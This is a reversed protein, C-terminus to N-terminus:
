AFVRQCTRQAGIFEAQGGQRGRQQMIELVFGFPGDRDPPHDCLFRGPKTFNGFTPSM